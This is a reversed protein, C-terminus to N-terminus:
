PTGTITGPRRGYALSLEAATERVAPVVITGLTDDSLSDIPASVNIAAVAEGTADVIPAAVSRIGM